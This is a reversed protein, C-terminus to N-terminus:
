LLHSKWTKKPSPFMTVKHRQGTIAVKGSLDQDWSELRFYIMINLFLNVFHEVTAYNEGIRLNLLKVKLCVEIIDHKRLFFSQVFIELFKEEKRDTWLPYVQLIEELVVKNDPTFTLGAEEVSRSVSTKMFRAGIPQFIQRRVKRQLCPRCFSSLLPQVPLGKYKSLVCGSKSQRFSM